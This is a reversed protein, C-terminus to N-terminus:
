RRTRTARGLHFPQPTSSTATSAAVQSRHDSDSMAGPHELLHGNPVLRWLSSERRWRDVAADGDPSNLRKAQVTAALEDWETSGPPVQAAVAETVLIRAGKDKSRLVLAVTRGDVLGPDPQELGGVVVLAADGDWVHWLPRPTSGEVAVWLLDSKKAAEALLASALEPETM